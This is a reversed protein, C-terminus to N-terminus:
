HSAARARAIFERVKDIDKRRPDDAQAVGSSVDVGWPRVTAIAATVNDPTLGGALLIKSSGASAGVQAWDFTRGTGGSAGNVMSDLMVIEEGPDRPPTLRGSTKSSVAPPVAPGATEGVVPLAHVRVVRVGLQRVLRAYEASEGGHLQVADLGIEDITQQITELEAGAFVGWLKAHVPVGRGSSTKAKAAEPSRVLARAADLSLYRKSSPVFNLGIADAGLATIQAYDSLETVGCIKIFM